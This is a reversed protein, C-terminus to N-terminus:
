SVIVSGTGTETKYTFTGADPFTHCWTAGPSISGSSTAPFTTGADFDLTHVVKDDNTWTVETGKKVTLTPPVLGSATISVSDAAQTKHTPHASKPDHKPTTM